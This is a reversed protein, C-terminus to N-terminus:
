RWGSWLLREWRRPTAGSSCRTIMVLCLAGVWALEPAIRLFEEAQPTWPTVQALLNAM